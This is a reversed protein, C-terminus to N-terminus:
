KVVINAANSGLLEAVNDQTILTTGYYCNIFTNTAKTADFEFKEEFTCNTFTTDTYPRCYAYKYGGTGKGFKCNTFSVAKFGSTYSTWGNLTSNKFVVEYNPDSGDASFTYCVDDITVNDIILDSKLGATFIGRFAGKVTLNKITGGSTYLACDWNGNADDVTLTNGNGDIVGGNTQTLGAVNYGGNTAEGTVDETILVDGGEAVTEKLTEAANDGAITTTTSKVVVYKGDVETATYGDAIFGPNKEFTGGTVSASGSGGWSSIIETIYGTFVGGTVSVKGGACYIPLGSDLKGEVNFNYTGGNITATGGSIYVLSSTQNLNGNQKYVGSNLTLNGSSSIVGHDSSIDIQNITLTGNNIIAYTQNPLGVFKGGNIVATSGSAVSLCTAGPAEEDDCATFTGGYVTVESGTYNWIAGGGNDDIANYEGGYIYLEGYNGVGRGNVVGEGKLTLVGKNEIAYVHKATNGSQYGGNLTNGGLDLAVTTGEEINIMDGEALDVDAGLKYNGGVKFAKAIDEVTSVPYAGTVKEFTVAFPSFSGTTFAVIGTTFDYTYDAIASGNHTVGSIVRNKGVNIEIPYDVGDVPTDIKQGDKYLEIDFGLVTNGDEDLTESRNAVKVEYSGTEANSPITVSVEGANVTKASNGSTFNVGKVVPYTALADYTNGFSDSESTYQTAVVNLGLDIQPAAKGTAHNAENGVTTPMYVVMAVTDSDGTKELTKEGSDYGASVKVSSSLAAIATARDAYKATVDNVIGFEIIDSLKITAGKETESTIENVVNVGLKYKLALSGKNTVRLYVVQTHGPEWLQSTFVNTSATVANWSAMDTSYELEVDLNGSKIINNASSVSDTFWAFTTGILMAVCVILALVSSLLARKTTKAKM